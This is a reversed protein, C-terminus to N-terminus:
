CWCFHVGGAGSLSALVCEGVWYGGVADREYTAAVLDATTNPTGPTVRQHPM